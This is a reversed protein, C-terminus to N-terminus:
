FQTVVKEAFREISTRVSASTPPTGDRSMWPACMMGTVGADELRRYLDADPRSNVALIVQNEARGATGAEERFGRLRDLQAMAEPETLLNGIWGDNRAARRLAAESEGGVYIPVRTPPVPTMSLRDIDYHRGHYEVVDGTWLARCIEIMEDTRKGRTTFEQDAAEFEERMWGVGAGLAVRGNSFAAASAVSKAVVLPHRLPAIYINTCFQVRETVAAMAAIAVFPDPWSASSDWGPSGDNSYPYKSALDAPFLLHDAVLVGHYGTEDCARAVELWHDPDLFSLSCWFRMASM